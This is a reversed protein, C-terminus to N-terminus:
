KLQQPSPKVFDKAKMYKNIVKMQSIIGQIFSYKLMKLTRYILFHITYAM